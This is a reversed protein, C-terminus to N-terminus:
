VTEQHHVAVLFGEGIGKVLVLFHLQVKHFVAVSCAADHAVADLHEALVVQHQDAASQLVCPILVVALTMGDVLYRYLERGVQEAVLEQLLVLEAAQTDKELVCLAADGEFQRGDHLEVALYRADCRCLWAEVAHEGQQLYEVLERELVVIM